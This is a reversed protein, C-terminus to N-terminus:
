GVFMWYSGVAVAYIAVAYGLQKADELLWDM